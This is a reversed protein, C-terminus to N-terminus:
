GIKHDIVVYADVYKLSVLDLSQVGIVKFFGSKRNNRYNLDFSTARRGSSTHRGMPNLTKGLTDTGGPPHMFLRAPTSNGSM